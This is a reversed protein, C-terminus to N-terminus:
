DASKQMFGNDITFVSGTISRSGDSALWLYARTIDAPELLAPFLNTKKLFTTFEELTQGTYQITGHTMDSLLHGPCVCNVRINHPALEVALARTLGVVGHKAATYHAFGSFGKLSAVSGTSIICGSGQAIMHPIVHKSALWSGKLITDVVPDWEAEGLEDIWHLPLIGANNCLIDIRGFKEMTAAVAASVDSEKRVDCVLGLGEVGLKEIDAVTEDLQERTGLPYKLGEMPGCIDVVTVNAGEAAFALSHSRGQGRAGGTVLVVKGDFEGV